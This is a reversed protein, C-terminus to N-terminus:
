QTGKWDTPKRIEFTDCKPQRRWQLHWGSWLKWLWCQRVESDPPDVWWLLLFVRRYHVTECGWPQDPTPDAIM